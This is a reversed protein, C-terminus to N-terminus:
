NRRIKPLLFYAAAIAVAGAIAIMTGKSGLFKSLLGEAGPIKKAQAKIQEIASKRWKEWQSRKDAPLQMMKADVSQMRQMIKESETKAQTELIKLTIFGGGLLTVAAIGVGILIPAVGFGSVPTTFSPFIDSEDATDAVIGVDGIDDIKVFYKKLLVGSIQRDLIKMRHTLDAIRQKQEDDVIVVSQGGIEAVALAMFDAAGNLLNLAEIMPKTRGEFQTKYKLWRDREAPTADRTNM